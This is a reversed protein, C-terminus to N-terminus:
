AFLLLCQATAKEETMVTEEPKHELASEREEKSENM